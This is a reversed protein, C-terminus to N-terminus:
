EQDPETEREETIGFGGKRYEHPTYGTHRKFYHTFYSASRLGTLEAITQMRMSEDALLKKALRIRRDSIYKNLSIGATEKYLRSLYSLSLGLYDGLGVLSVDSGLHEEIYRNARRVVYSKADTRTKEREQFYRGSIDELYAAARGFDGHYQYNSLMRLTAEDLFSNEGPLYMRIARLLVSAIELYSTVQWMDGGGAAATFIDGLMRGYKERDMQSLCTDLAERDILEMFGAPEKGADEGKEEPICISIGNEEGLEIRRHNLEYWAEAANEVTVPEGYLYVAPRGFGSKECVHLSIDLIERLRSISGDKKQLLFCLINKGSFASIRILNKPITKDLVERVAEQEIIDGGKEMCALFLFFPELLQFEPQIVRLKEKLRALKEDNWERGYLLQKLCDKKLAPIAEELNRHLKLVEAKKQYLKELREWALDIASLIASDEETKLVYSIVGPMVARRALAFEKQGTLFITQCDPWHELVIERLRIGDMGPMCIDTMMIDIHHKEFLELAQLGNTAKFLYLQDKKQKLVMQYLSELILPEDDIILLNYM